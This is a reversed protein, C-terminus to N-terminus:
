IGGLSVVFDYFDYSKDYSLLPLTVVQDLRGKGMTMRRVM